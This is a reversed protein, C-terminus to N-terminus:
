FGVPLRYMSILDFTDGMATQGRHEDWGWTKASKGTIQESALGTRNEWHRYIYQCVWQTIATPLTVATRVQRVLLRTDNSSAVVIEEVHPYRWALTVTGAANTAVVGPVGVPGYSGGVTTSNVLACFSTATDTNSAGVKFHHEEEDDSAAAEYSQDNVLLYDGAVVSAFVITPRIEEFPNNLYEDAKQVAANFLSELLTDHDTGDISLYAKVTTKLTAWVLGTTVAGM